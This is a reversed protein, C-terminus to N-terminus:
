CRLLKHNSQFQVLVWFPMLLLCSLFLEPHSAVKISKLVTKELTPRSRGNLTVDTVGRM